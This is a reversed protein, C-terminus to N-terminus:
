GRMDAVSYLLFSAFQIMMTVAFIGLFGAMLYKVYMGFGSQSVEYNLMPSTIVSTKDSMGFAM